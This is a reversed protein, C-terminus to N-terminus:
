DEQQIADYPCVDLCSKCEVCIEKDIVAKEETLSIAEVPCSEVCLGCGVCNEDVFM